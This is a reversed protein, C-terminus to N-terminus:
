KHPELRKMADNYLKNQKDDDVNAWDKYNPQHRWIDVLYFRKCSPWADLLARSFGGANACGVPSLSICVRCGCCVQPAVPQSEGTQVGLEAGISM